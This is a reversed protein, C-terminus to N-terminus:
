FYRRYVEDGLTEKHAKFYTFLYILNSFFLFDLLFSSLGELNERKADRLYEINLTRAAQECQSRRLPYESGSLQHKVGSNIILVCVNPDDLPVDTGEM